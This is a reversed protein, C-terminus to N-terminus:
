CNERSVVVVCARSLRFAAFEGRGALFGDPPHRACRLSLDPCPATACCRCCQRQSKCHGFDPVRVRARTLQVICMSCGLSCFGLAGKRAKLGETSQDSDIKERKQIQFFSSLFLFVIFIRLRPFPPCSSVSPPLSRHSLTATFGRPVGFRFSPDNTLPPPLSPFSPQPKQRRSFLSLTVYVVHTVQSTHTESITAGLRM